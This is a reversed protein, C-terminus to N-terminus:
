LIIQKMAKKFRQEMFSYEQFEKAVFVIGIASPMKHPLVDAFLEPKALRYIERIQRKIRNRDVSKRFNKKSVSIVIQPPAILNESVPVTEQPEKNKPLLFSIKFPFVFVSSSKANKQYSFLEEIIKKSCLKESKPFKQNIV